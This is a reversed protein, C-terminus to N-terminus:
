GNEPHWHLDGESHQGSLLPSFALLTPMVVIVVISRVCDRVDPPDAAVGMTNTTSSSM